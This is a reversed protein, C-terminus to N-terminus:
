GIALAFNKPISKWNTCRRVWTL